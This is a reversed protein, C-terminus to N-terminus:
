TQDHAEAAPTAGQPVTTSAAEEELDLSASNMCWRQGTPAPGDPFVHGLHAGCRACRAEVRVMGHGHDVETVVVDDSLPAWFSPWGTGSEYKTSSRFLEAGCVVCRYVGPTKANWLDGSFAYETGQRQTVEYQLPSLRKRLEDDDFTVPFPQADPAAM